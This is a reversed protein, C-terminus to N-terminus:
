EDRSHDVRGRTQKLTSRQRKADSARKTSARSPRTARRPRQEALADGLLEALRERALERNRTRSRHRQAHVVLLGSRTLRSRLARKVRELHEATLAESVLANWRLTVRSSVKNVHQGGPGSSRSALEELEGGPIVISQARELRVELDAGPM